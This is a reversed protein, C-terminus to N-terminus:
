AKGAADQTRLYQVIEVLDAYASRGRYDLDEAARALGAVAMELLLHSPHYEPYQRRRNLKLSFSRVEETLRKIVIRRPTNNCVTYGRGAVCPAHECLPCFSNPLLEDTGDAASTTLGEVLDRGSLSRQVLDRQVMAITFSHVDEATAADLRTELLDITSGFSRLAKNIRDQRGFFGAALLDRDLQGDHQEAWVEDLLRRAEADSLQM